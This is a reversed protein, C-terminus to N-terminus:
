SFCYRLSSRVLHLYGSHVKFLISCLLKCCVLGLLLVLLMLLNLPYMAMEYMCLRHLLICFMQLLYPEYIYVQILWPYFGICSLFPIIYQYFTIPQVAISFINSSQSSVNNFPIDLPVKVLVHCGCRWQGRVVISLKLMIPLFPYPKVLVILFDM